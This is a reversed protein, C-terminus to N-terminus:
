QRCLVGRCSNSAGAHSQLRMAAATVALAPYGRPEGAREWRGKKGAVTGSRLAPRAPSTMGKKNGHAEDRGAVDDRGALDERGAEGRRAEDRGALISAHSPAVGLRLSCSKCTTGTKSHTSTYLRPRLSALMCALVIFVLRALTPDRSSKLRCGIYAIQVSCKSSPIAQRPSRRSSSPRHGDGALRKVVKSTRHLKTCISTISSIQAPNPLATSFCMAGPCASRLSVFPHHVFSM